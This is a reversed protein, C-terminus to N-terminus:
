LQLYLEIIDLKEKPFDEIEMLEDFSKIRGNKERYAVIRIALAYKIYVLKALDYPSAQNINIKSISPSELIKFRGLIRSVVEQELGYVHLLQKEVVFGGLLDRFKVIRRSLVDGIGNISKLDEATAKNLDKITVNNASVRKGEIPFIQSNSLHASKGGVKSQSKGESTWAPFKFYPSLSELMSDSVLTVKQFEKASNVYQDKARFDHLRDIEKTSMGLTYGKYDSIFNPNFPYLFISDKNQSEGKLADLKAQYEEDVVFSNGKESATYSKGVFYLVQFVVIFLLM